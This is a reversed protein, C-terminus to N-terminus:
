LEARAVALSAELAAGALDALAATVPRVAALPDPHVLDWAAVRAVLARYRIRLATRAPTGTIGAVGDVAHVSELMRTRVDAPAPMGELPRAFAELEDTHRTLFEALGRSSGIVRALRHRADPDALVARTREPDERLLRVLADLAGDPDASSHLAEVLDAETWGSLEAAEELAEGVESLRAFGARALAGLLTQGRRM